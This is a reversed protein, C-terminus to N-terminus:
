EEEARYIASRRLAILTPFASDPALCSIRRSSARQQEWDMNLERFEGGKASLALQSIPSSVRTGRLGVESSGTPSFFFSFSPRKQSNNGGTRKKNRACSKSVPHDQKIM